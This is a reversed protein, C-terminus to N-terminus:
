NSRVDFSLSFTNCTALQIHFTFTVNGGSMVSSVSASQSNLTNGGSLTVNAAYPNTLTTGGTDQLLDTATLTRNGGACSGNDTSGSLTIQTLKSDAIPAQSTVAITDSSSGTSVNDSSDSLMPTNGISAGATSSATVYITFVTTAATSGAALTCTVAQGSITCGSSASDITFASDVTDTVMATGETALGGTNTVTLTLVGPGSQFIPNSHTASISLSASEAFVYDNMEVLGGSVSISTGLFQNSTGDSAVLEATQTWTAGSGTFIYGAGQNANSGVKHSPAGVALSTGDYAVASGFADSAAGDSSSLEVQQTWDSGSQTYVYVAGQGDNGGVTHGPSGVMATTGNVAIKAGFDDNSGADSPALLTQASWTSGSRQFTQVAGVSPVRGVLAIDGSLAVSYGFEYLEAPSVAALEQQETWSGSVFTYIYAAGASYVGSNGGNSHFPAGILLSTGDFALANGFSDGSNTTPDPSFIQQKESWVGATRTFVYVEGEDNTGGVAREPAGIVVTDGSLAVAAGFHQQFGTSEDSATLEQQLSWSSGSQTFIYVAGAGTQGNVSHGYAGVAV